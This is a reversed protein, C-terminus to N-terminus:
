RLSSKYRRGNSRLIFQAPLLPPRPPSKSVDSNTGAQFLAGGSHNKCRGGTIGVWQGITHRNDVNSLNAGPNPDLFPVNWTATVSYVAPEPGWEEGDVGTASQAVDIVGGGLFNSVYRKALKAPSPSSTFPPRFASAVSIATALLWISKNKSIMM